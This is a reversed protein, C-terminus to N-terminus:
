RKAEKILKTLANIATELTPEAVMQKEIKGCGHIITSHDRGGFQDGLETTSCETLECCLYMAVHRPLAISKTRKKSKIDSISISFYDAVIKQILDVTVNRQRSSGFVDRLLNTATEINMEKKTLETYAILKTLAAELDRVNTSIKEAVMELVDDPIQVAQKELKKLLIARRTEFGPAQLDVNLGREFRSKLRQTLNKLDSPPRDCTFVIHKNKEYLANFTHFLEEQTENKNQFFHIDDILLVDCSRYKKKFSAMDKDKLAFVFENTFNEAPVYIINLDTSEWLANGIAQMLHTKGLGVDGYILFPNYVQGPNKAVGMAANVAFNSNEGIVFNSFSYNENLAPHQGSRKKASSAATLNIQPKAHQTEESDSSEEEIAEDDNKVKSRIVFEVKLESGSIELLSKQIDRLYKQKIQDEIFKSPVAIVITNEKSSEYKVNAFWMSFQGQSSKQGQSFKQTLRNLVENWFIEYNWESMIGSNYCKNVNKQLLAISLIRM